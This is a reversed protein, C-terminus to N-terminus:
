VYKRLMDSIIQHHLIVDNNLITTVYQYVFLVYKLEEERQTVLYYDGKEALQREFVDFHLTIENKWGSRLKLYNQPPYALFPGNIVVELQDIIQRFSM